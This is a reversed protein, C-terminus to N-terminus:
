ERRCAVNMVLDMVTGEAVAAAPQPRADPYERGERDWSVLALRRRTRERCNFEEHGLHVSEDGKGSGRFDVRVRIRAVDGTRELSDRDWHLAPGGAPAGPVATWSEAAAAGAWALAAAAAAAAGFRGM